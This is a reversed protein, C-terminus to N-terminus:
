KFQKEIEHQKKLLANYESVKDDIESIAKKLQVVQAKNLLFTMADHGTELKGVKRSASPVKCILLHDKTSRSGFYYNLEVDLAFGRIYEYEIKRTTANTSRDPYPDANIVDYVSAGREEKILAVTGWDIKKISQNSMKKQLMFNMKVAKKNWELYKELISITEELDTSSLILSYHSMDAKKEEGLLETLTTKSVFNTFFICTDKSRMTYKIEMCAFVGPISPKSADGSFEVLEIKDINLSEKEKYIETQQGYAITTAIVIFFIYCLIRM